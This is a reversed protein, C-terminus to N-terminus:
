FTGIDKSFLNLQLRAARTHVDNLPRRCYTYTYEASITNLGNQVNGIADLITGLRAELRTEGETYSNGGRYVLRGRWLSYDGGRYVLRDRRLLTEGKTSSDGGRYVLRGSRLRTRWEISSDGGRYVLRAGKYVLKQVCAEGEM